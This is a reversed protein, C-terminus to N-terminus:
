FWEKRNAIYTQYFDQDSKSLYIVGEIIGIVAMVIAGLGLTLISVLLMILGSTTYGLIFKHIGLAGILIGCIGAALKTSAAQQYVPDGQMGPVPMPAMGPQRVGCKPCIEARADIVAGCAYCYKTAPTNM